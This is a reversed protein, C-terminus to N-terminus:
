YAPASPEYASYAPPGPNLLDKNIQDLKKLRQWRNAKWYSYRLVESGVGLGLLIMWPTGSMGLPILYKAALACAGVSLLSRNLGAIMHNNRFLKITDKLNIITDIRSRSPETRVLTQCEKIDSQVRNYKAWTEGLLYLCGLKIAGFALGALVNREPEENADKKPASEEGVNVPSSHRQQRRTQRSDCYGNNSVIVPAPAQVIIPAPQSYFLPSGWAHDYRNYHHHHVEQFQPLNIQAPAVEDIVAPISDENSEDSRYYMIM